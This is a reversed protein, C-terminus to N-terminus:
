VTSDTDICDGVRRYRGEAYSLAGPHGGQGPPVLIGRVRALVLTHDGVDVLGRNILECRLAKVVGEAALIPPQDRNKLEKFERSKWGDGGDVNGRTFADAVRAGSASAALVHVHFARSARIAELTTSPRQINLSIVPEPALSLTTFSSITMGRLAGDPATSTCVVVSHPMSRM